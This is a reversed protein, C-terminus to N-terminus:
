VQMKRPDDSSTCLTVEEQSKKKFTVMSSLSGALPDLIGTGEQLTGHHKWPLAHGRQEGPLVDILEKRASPIKRHPGRGVAQDEKRTESTKELSEQGLHLYLDQNM